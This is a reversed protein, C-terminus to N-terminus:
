KSSVTGSYTFAPQIMKIFAGRDIGIRNGCPCKIFNEEKITYDEVIRDKWCRLVKGKGIKKYKLLKRKCKSCRIILM